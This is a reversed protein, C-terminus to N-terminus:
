HKYTKLDSTYNDNKIIWKFVMLFVNNRFSGNFEFVTELM